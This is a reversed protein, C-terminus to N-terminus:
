LIMKEDMKDNINILGVCNNCNNCVFCEKCKESNILDGCGDCSTCKLSCRMDNCNKCKDCYKCDICRTCNECNYSGGCNKCKICMDCFECNTSNECGYCNYCKSCGICAYCDYCDTCKINKLLCVYYKKCDYILTGIQEYLKPIKCSYVSNIYLCKIKDINDKHKIYDEETYSSIIDLTEEEDIFSTNKNLHLNYNVPFKNRKITSIFKYSFYNCKVKVSSIDKSLDVFINDKPNTYLVSM